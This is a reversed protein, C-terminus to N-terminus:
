ASVATALAVEALSQSVFEIQHDEMAPFIPLSLIEQYASEATPCRISDVEFRERYFSHQYVPRYHVNAAIQRQRLENFVKDRNSGCRIVMLHYAHTRDELHVLPRYDALPELQRCYERAIVQRRDTFSNIKSLQSMALACQMDTLRLNFGLHKMDYEFQGLKQRSRHDSDIGHNRFCQLRRTLTEAWQHDATNVTVMGGEGCTIPKVPHFSFCSLDALSGVPRHNYSAGLSHCADALLFLDFDDALQRLATYDCPQGAYDVAIIAKTDKTIKNAVDDVDILLTDASVDAFVPVGGNYIVANATACFTIAPVIVQDGPQIDIAHLAAQLAATGNCVSTASYAHTYASFATEFQGVLPGTTLWDSRLVDVVSQIDAEDITQKGYPLLQNGRTPRTM